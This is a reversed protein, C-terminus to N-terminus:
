VASSWDAPIFRYGGGDKALYGNAPFPFHYGTIRIRDAVVQDYIRRRAAEAMQADFDFVAHFEPRRALLEPRNSTDAVFMAQANGDAILYCTHGPTHGHAAVAQIGPIVEVGAAVQRIKGQYPAFRRASNAFNGRQGEPSRTENGTDSWWAWEAAPVVVEANPFAAAGAGNLLGNVHDGHFHSMVVLDVKAPDIGAAAMNQIMKGQTATAPLVGNGSDFVVLRSGTDLFTVTFPIRFSDTPLFSEALVKQVEALPANRIFGELPRVFFGDHVTTITFGGVKFRYFGPAQSVPAAAPAPAAPATQAAAGRLLAPAALGAALGGLALRRSTTDTM